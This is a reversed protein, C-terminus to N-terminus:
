NEERMGETETVDENHGGGIVSSDKGGQNKALKDEKGSGDMKQRMRKREKPM